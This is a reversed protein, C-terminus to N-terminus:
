KTQPCANVTTNTISNANTFQTYNIHDVTHVLILRYTSLDHNVRVRQRRIVFWQTIRAHLCKVICTTGIFLKKM